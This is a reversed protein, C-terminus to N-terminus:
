ACLAQARCLDAWTAAKAQPEARLLYAPDHSVIAPVGAIRHVHGRLQGLPAGPRQLVARALAMGLVLVCAPRLEALVTQLHAPLDLPTDPAPTDRPIVGSKDSQLAASFVRPHQHLNLARLMNHLLRAADGQLATRAATPAAATAAPLAHTPRELLILWGGTTLSADLADPYVAQAAEMHWRIPAACPDPRPPVPMTTRVVPAEAAQPPPATARAAVPVVPMPAPATAPAPTATPVLPKPLWVMIGMARLMARQRLGLNLAM